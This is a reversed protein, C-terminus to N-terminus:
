PKPNRTMSEPRVALGFAFTVVAEGGVKGFSALVTLAVLSALAILDHRQM